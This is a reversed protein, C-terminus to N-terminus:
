SWASLEKGCRNSPLVGGMTPCDSCSEFRRVQPHADPILMPILPHADPILPHADPILPHADPILMPSSCRPHADPILM